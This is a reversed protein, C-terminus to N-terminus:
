NGALDAQLLRQLSHAVRWKETTESLVCTAGLERALWEWNSNSESVICVMPTSAAKAHITRILELSADDGDVVLLLGQALSLEELLETQYPRWRFVIQPTDAFARELEATWHSVQEHVLITIASDM